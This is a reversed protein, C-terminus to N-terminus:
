FGRRAAQGLIAGWRLAVEETVDLVRGAFRGRLDTELWRELETRRRSAPLREIGKRIEGLTLVSLFTTAEECQRVFAVVREDPKPRVFESVVCTDLLWSM